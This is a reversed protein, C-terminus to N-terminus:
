LQRYSQSGHRHVRAYALLYARVLMRQRVRSCINECCACERVSWCGLVHILRPLAHVATHMYSRRVKASDLDLTTLQTASAPTSIAAPPMEQPISAHNSRPTEQPPSARGSRNESTSEKRPTNQLSPGLPNSPRLSNCYLHMAHLIDPVQTCWDTNQSGAVKSRGWVGSRREMSVRRCWFACSNSLGVRACRQRLCLVHGCIHLCVCSCVEQMLLAGAHNLFGMLSGFVLDERANQVPKRICHETKVVLSVCLCVPL